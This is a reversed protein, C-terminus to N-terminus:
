KFELHEARPLDEIRALGFLQLFRASTRYAAEGAEGTEARQVTLLERQLLQRLQSGANKNRLMEIAGRTIPQRYAVLALVELADQSLRVHKPGFGYVRNRLHEFDPRLAIQYGQESVVIEYPRAQREYREGLERISSEVFSPAFEGRLAASIAKASMARGGVFLLAEVVQTPLVRVDESATEAPPSDLRGPGGVASDPQEELADGSLAANASNLDNAVSEVADLARRYLRELEECSWTASSSADFGAADEDDSELM